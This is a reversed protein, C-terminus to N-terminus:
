SGIIVKESMLYTMNRCCELKVYNPCTSPTSSAWTGVNLKKGFVKGVRRRPKLVFIPVYGSCHAETRLQGMELPNLM